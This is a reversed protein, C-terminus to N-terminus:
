EAWLIFDDNKTPQLEYKLDFSLEDIITLLLERNCYNLSSDVLLFDSWRIHDKNKFVDQIIKKLIDKLKKKSSIKGFFEEHSIYDRENLSKKWKHSTFYSWSTVKGRSIGDDQCYDHHEIIHFFNPVGNHWDKLQASFSGASLINVVYGDSHNYTFRPIHKHGHVIFDFENKNAFKLFDEANKMESLDADPFTRDTYNKPHHHTLLIKLKKKDVTSISLLEQELKQLCKLNVEGFKVDKNCSDYASSNVGVIILDDSNWISSYPDNYYSNLEANKLLSEFFDNNKINIYKSSIVKENTDKRSFSDKEHQWNGDHNGPVFFVNKANINFINMIDQIRSAAIEFEAIEAKNTIDGAILLHTAEIKENEVLDKLDQIFDEALATLGSDGTCFDKARATEGVHLDSIVLIKM